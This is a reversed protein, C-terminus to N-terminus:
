TPRSDGGDDSVMKRKGVTIHVPPNYSASADLAQPLVTAEVDAKAGASNDAGSVDGDLPIENLAGTSDPAGTPSTTAAGTTETPIVPLNCLASGTPAASDVPARANLPVSEIV